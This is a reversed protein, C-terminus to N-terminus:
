LLNIVLQCNSRIKIKFAISLYPYRSLIADIFVIISFTSCLEAIHLHRYEESISSIFDGRAVIKEAVLVYWVASILHSYEPFFSRDIVFIVKGALLDQLLNYSKAIKM